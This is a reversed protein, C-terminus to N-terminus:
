KSSRATTSRESGETLSAREEFGGADIGLAVAFAAAAITGVEADVVDRDLNQARL